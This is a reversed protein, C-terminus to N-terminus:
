AISFNDTCLLFTAPLVGCALFHVPFSLHKPTSNVPFLLLKTLMFAVPLDVEPTVRRNNISPPSCFDSTEAYKDDM